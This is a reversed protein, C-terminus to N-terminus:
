VMSSSNSLWYQFISPLSHFDMMHDWGRHLQPWLITPLVLATLWRILMPGFCSKIDLLPPASEHSLLVKYDFPHPLDGHALLAQTLSSSFLPPEELYTAEPFLLRPYPPPGTFLTPNWGQDGCREGRAGQRRPNAAHVRKQSAGCKVVARNLEQWQHRGLWPAM